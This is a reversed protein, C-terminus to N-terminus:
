AEFWGTRRKHEYYEDDTWADDGTPANRAAARPDPSLRANYPDRPSAPNTYPAATPPHDRSATAPPPAAAGATNTDDDTSPARWRSPDPVQSTATADSPGSDVPKAGHCAYRYVNMILKALRAPGHAYAEPGVDLSHLRGAADVEITIGGARVTTTRKAQAPNTSPAAPRANHTDNDNPKSGPLHIALRTAIKNGATGRNDATTRTTVTLQILFTHDDTDALLYRTHTWFTTDAVTYTGTIAASPYGDYDDLSSGIEQWAPLQRSDTFACPLLTSPDPPPTSLRDVTVVANDAWEIDTVPPGSWVGYAATFLEKSVPRWGRPIPILVTPASDSDPLVPECRIGADALYQGVTFQSRLPNHGPAATM